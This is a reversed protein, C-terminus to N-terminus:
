QNDEVIADRAFNNSKSRIQFSSQPKRTRKEERPEQAIVLDLKMVQGGIGKNVNGDEHIQAFSKQAYLRMKFEKSEKEVKFWM